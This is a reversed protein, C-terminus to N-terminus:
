NTIIFNSTGSSVNYTIESVIFMLVARLNLAYNILTLHQWWHAAANDDSHPKYAPESYGSSTCDLPSSAFRLGGLIVILSSFLGKTVAESVTM